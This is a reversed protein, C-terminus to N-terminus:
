QEFDDIIALEVVDVEKEMQIQNLMPTPVELPQRFFDEALLETSQLLGLGLCGLSPKYAPHIHERCIIAQL